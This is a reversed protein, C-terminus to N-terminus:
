FVDWGTLLYPIDFACCLMSYALSFATLWIRKKNQGTHVPEVTAASVPNYVIHPCHLKKSIWTLHFCWVPWSYNSSLPYSTKQSSKNKRKTTIRKRMRSKKIYISKSISTKSLKYNWVKQINLLFCCIKFYIIIYYIIINLFGKKANRNHMARNCVNVM